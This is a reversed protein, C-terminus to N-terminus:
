DGQTWEVTHTQMVQLVGRRGEKDVEMEDGRHVREREKREERERRGREEREGIRM